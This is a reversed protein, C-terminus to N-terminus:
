ELNITIAVSLLCGVLLLMGLSHNYIQKKKNAPSKLINKKKTKTDIYSRVFEKSDVGAKEAESSVEQEKNTSLNANTVERSIVVEDSVDTTNNTSAPNAFLGKKSVNNTVVNNKEQVDSSVEIEEIEEEEADSEEEETAGNSLLLDIIDYYKECKAFILATYGEENKANVNAKTEKLLIEVAKEKDKGAAWILATNGLNDRMETDAGASLLIRMSELKGYGSLLMLASHGKNKKTNIYEEILKKNSKKQGKLFNSFDFFGGKLGEKGSLLKILVDAVKVFDKDELKKAARTLVTEGRSDKLKNIDGSTKLSFFDQNKKMLSIARETEGKEIAHIVEDNATGSASLSSLGYFYAMIIPLSAVKKIFFKMHNIIINILFTHTAVCSM